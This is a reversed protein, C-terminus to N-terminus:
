PDRLHVRLRDRAQATLQAVPDSQRVLALKGCRPAPGDPDRQGSQRLDAAGRAGVRSGIRELEVEKRRATAHVARDVFGPLELRPILTASEQQSRM